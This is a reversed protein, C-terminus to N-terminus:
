LTLPAGGPVPEDFTFPEKGQVIRRAAEPAVSAGVRGETPTARGTERVPGLVSERIAERIPRYGTCRCLNGKMRRDLDGLDNE